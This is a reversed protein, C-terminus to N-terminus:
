FLEKDDIEDILDDEGYEIMDFNFKNSFIIELFIYGADRLERLMDRNGIKFDTSRDIGSTYESYSYEHTEFEIDMYGGAEAAAIATTLERTLPENVSTWFRCTIENRGWNSCLEDLRSILDIRFGDEQEIMLNDFSGANVSPICLGSIQFYRFESKYTIM